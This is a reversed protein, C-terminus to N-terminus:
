PRREEPGAPIAFTVSEGARCFAVQGRFEYETDRGTKNEVTVCTVPVMWMDLKREVKADFSKVATETCTVRM